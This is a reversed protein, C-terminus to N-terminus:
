NRFVNKKIKYYQVWTINKTELLSQKRVAPILFSSVIALILFIIGFTICQFLMYYMADDGAAPLWWEPDKVFYYFVTGITLMEFIYGFALVLENYKLSTYDLIFIDPYSYGFGNFFFFMWFIVMLGNTGQSTSAVITVIVMWIIKFVISIQFGLKPSIAFLTLNSLIVGAFGVFHVMSIILKGSASVTFLLVYFYFPYFFYFMTTTKSMLAFCIFGFEKSFSNRSDIQSDPLNNSPMFYKESFIQGSDNEMEFSQDLSKKSNYDGSKINLIENFVIGLVLVGASVTLLIGVNHNYNHWESLSFSGEANQTYSLIATICFGLFYFTHSLAVNFNRPSDNSARINIYTLTPIYSIGHGAFGM